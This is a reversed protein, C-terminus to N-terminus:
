TSSREPQQALGTIAAAREAAAASATQSQAPDPEASAREPPPRGDRDRPRDLLGLGRDLQRRLVLADGGLASVLVAPGRLPLLAADGDLPLAAPPADGWAPDVVLLSGIAGHGGTVAPGDWGTADPGVALQQHYLPRGALEVRVTQRVTGPAEGHRGLLLEERLVLRAGPALAVRVDSVHRCGRAAIVPEPLWVLTAGAGVDVEVDFRSEAGHPGPLVLTASVDRLVLTSGPGVEVRLRLRDGGIPGAAGAVLCVRAVDARGDTWPEPGKPRTPRLILPSESRLAAIRTRPTGDTRPDRETRLHAAARM